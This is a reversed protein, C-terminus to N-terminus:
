PEGTMQHLHRGIDDVHDLAAQGLVGSTEVAFPVFHHSAELNSYKAIKM